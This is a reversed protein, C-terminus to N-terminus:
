GRKGTGQAAQRESSPANIRVDHIRRQMLRQSCPGPILGPSPILRHNAHRRRAKLLGLNGDRCQEHVCAGIRVQRRPVVVGALGPKNPGVQRSVAADEYSDREHGASPITRRLTLRRPKRLCPIDACFSEYRVKSDKRRGSGTCTFSTTLLWGVGRVVRWSPDRRTCYLDTGHIKYVLYSTCLVLYMTSPVEYLYLVLNGLGLGVIYTYGKTGTYGHIGIHTMNYMTTGRVHYNEARRTTRKAPPITSSDDFAPRQQSAASRASLPCSALSCRMRM